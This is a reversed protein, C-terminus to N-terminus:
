FNPHKAIPLNTKRTPRRPAARPHPSLASASPEPEGQSATPAATAPPSAAPAPESAAATASTAMVAAATTVASTTGPTPAGAPDTPSPPPATVQPATAGRAVDPTHPATAARRLEVLLITVGVFAAALWWASRGRGTSSSPGEMPAMPRSPDADHLTTMGRPVAAAKPFAFDLTAGDASIVPPPIASFPHTTDHLWHAAISGGAVDTDAGADIAWQALATGFERMTPRDGAQKALADKLIEWLRADGAAQETIPAPEETM